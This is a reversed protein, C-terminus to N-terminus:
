AYYIDDNLLLEREEHKKILDSFISILMPDFTRGSEAQLKMLTENRAEEDDWNRGAMKRDFAEAIAIIRAQLPIENQSLGKPFGSGDWKEHHAYVAEALDLTGDFLNLIRYGASTHQMKMELEKDDKTDQVLLISDDLIIKGIDHLYGADYLRKNETESLKLHQGMAKCLVAVHISHEKEGKLRKHLTKIITSITDKGFRKRTLAKDKYMEYEANGMVKEINQREALKTDLGLAMSCNVENVKDEALRSRITEMIIVADDRTTEPLLVVFEDGGIRAIATENGCSDRLIASARRILEDGAAHGFVDNVLKLGNLDAFMITLPYKKEEDMKRIEEELSQRNQLGTLADHSHLYEIREENKKRETIDTFTVVAGILQDNKRQPYSHYEVDFYTGDARMFIDDASHYPENTMLVKLFQLEKDTQMGTDSSKSQLMENIAKGQLDAQDKYGLISVARNNCFTCIGDTDIGFIGEATSNLILQLEDKTRTLNENTNSLENTREQVKEELNNMYGSMKDTMENFIESIYGIEDRRHISVQQSLDGASICNIAVILHRIPRFLYTIVKYLVVTFLLLFAAVIMWTVLINQKLDATTVEEPLVSIVMWNLGNQVYKEAHVYYTIKDAIIQYSAMDNYELYATKMFENKIESILTRDFSGDDLITYDTEGFSNGIMEGTETELIMAYGGINGASSELKQNIDKLLMHAGLVGVFDGNEDYIPCSASIALDNMFFHKYVSSFVIMHYEVAKKYWDRNRPDFKGAQVALEGATLDDNLSYYWSTGQTEANNVMIEIENEANRRAGYYEGSATGFSFSYVDENHELLVNVFYQDREKADALNVIGYELLPKNVECIHYPVQLMSDIDMVVEHNLDNSMLEATQEASNMWNMFILASICFVSLLMCLVSVLLISNRISLTHIDNKFAKNRDFAGKNM